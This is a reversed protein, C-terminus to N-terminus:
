ALKAYATPFTGSMANLEGQTWGDGVDEGVVLIKDGARITLEDPATADYDYLAIMYQVKKGGRKPAVTPGKKKASGPAGGAVGGSVLSDNSVSKPITATMPLLQVYSAPVLGEESGHRVNIWGSGDDEEIVELRQGESISIEDEGDASYAYLATAYQTGQSHSSTQDGGAGFPDTHAAAAVENSANSKSGPKHTGRRGLIGSMFSHKHKDTSNATTSSTTSRRSVTRGLSSSTSTRALASDADGSGNSTGTATRVTKKRGFLGRKTVTQEVPVSSLDKDSTALEITEVEVNEVLRMTDAAMVSQLAMLHKSLLATQNSASISSMNKKADVLQKYTELKSEVNKTENSLKTRSDALRKRLYRLEEDDGTAMTEDDGWIPSPVFVFDTPEKWQKLNHKVFMASDLTQINQEVVETMKDLNTICRQNNAKELSIAQKWFSNLLSVRAENVGQLGDLIEPLDERYYKDKVRNAVNIKILYHNKAKNMDHEKGEMKKNAKEKSKDYSKSAKMRTDEMKQCSADYDVKAKKHSSYIDERRKVVDEHCNVYKKKVEDFRLELGHIQDAISITFEQALRQKEKGIQETETLIETWTVLSANELSGPTVQPTDGVSLSTSLKAKKEFYKSSLAVLKTAYEKEIAARERYFSQIDDM